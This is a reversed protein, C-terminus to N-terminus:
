IYKGDPSFRPNSESGSSYSVRFDQKGDWSAMWVASTRKDGTVDSGEVTYAIWQGDPSCQPDDVLQLKSIDDITLNHKASQATAVSSVCLLFILIYRIAKM